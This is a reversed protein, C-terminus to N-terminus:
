VLYFKKYFAVHGRRSRGFRVVEYGEIELEINLFINNIKTESLRIVTANARKENANENIKTLRLKCEFSHLAHRKKSIHEM